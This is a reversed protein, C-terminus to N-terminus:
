ENKKNHKNLHEYIRPINSTYSSNLKQENIRKEYFNVEFQNNFEKNDFFPKQPKKYKNYYQSQFKFKNKVDDPVEKNKYIRSDPRKRGSVYNNIEVNLVPNHYKEKPNYSWYHYPIDTNDCM